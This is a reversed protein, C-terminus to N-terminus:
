RDAAASQLWTAHWRLTGRTLSRFTDPRDGPVCMNMHRMWGHIVATTVTLPQTLNLRGAPVDTGTPGSTTGVAQLHAGRRRLTDDGPTPLEPVVGRRTGVSQRTRDYGDLTTACIPCPRGRRAYIWHDPTNLRRGTTNQPGRAANTRILAVGVGVLVELGEIAGIPQNPSVAAIFPLEIAYVNGFGAVNRQDLLATALAVDPERRLREVIEDVDPTM